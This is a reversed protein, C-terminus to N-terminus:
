CFSGFAIRRLRFKLWINSQRSPIHGSTLRKAAVGKGCLSGLASHVDGATLKLQDTAVAVSARTRIAPLTKFFKTRLPQAAVDHSPHVHPKTQVFQGALSPSELTPQREYFAIEVHAAQSVRQRGM